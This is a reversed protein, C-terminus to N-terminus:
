CRLFATVDSKTAGDSAGLRPPGALANGLAVAVTQAPEGLSHAFRVARLRLGEDDL